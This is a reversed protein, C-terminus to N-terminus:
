DNLINAIKIIIIERLLLGFDSLHTIICLWIYVAVNLTFKESCHSSTIERLLKLESYQQVLCWYIMVFAFISYLLKVSKIYVQFDYLLM